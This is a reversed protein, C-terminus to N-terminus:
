IRTKREKVMVKMMETLESEVRIEPNEIIMDMYRPATGYDMMETLNRTKNAMDEFTKFEEFQIQVRLERSIGKLFKDKLLIERQAIVEPNEAYNRNSYPLARKLLQTLRDSYKGGPKQSLEGVRERTGCERNMVIFGVM